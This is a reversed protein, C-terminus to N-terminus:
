KRYFQRLHWWPRAVCVPGAIARRMKRVFVPLTYGFHSLLGLVIFTGTALYFTWWRFHLLLLLFPVAARADVGLFRPTMGADRWFWFKRAM